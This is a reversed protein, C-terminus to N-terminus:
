RYAQKALSHCLRHSCIRSWGKLIGFVMEMSRSTCLRRDSSWAWDTGFCRCWVPKELEGFTMLYWSAVVSYWGFWNFWYIVITHYWDLRSLKRKFFFHVNKHMKSTHSKVITNRSASVSAKTKAESHLSMKFSTFSKPRYSKCWCLCGIWCYKGGFYSKSPYNDHAVIRPTSLLVVYLQWGKIFAIVIGAIFSCLFQIFTELGLELARQTSWVTFFSHGELGQFRGAYYLIDLSWQFQCEIGPVHHRQRSRSRISNKIHHILEFDNKQKM